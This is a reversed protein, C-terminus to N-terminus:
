YQTYFIYKIKITLFSKKKRYDVQLLNQKEEENYDEIFKVSREATDNIVKINM